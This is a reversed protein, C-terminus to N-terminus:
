NKAKKAAEREDFTQKRARALKILLDVASPGFGEDQYFSRLSGENKIGRIFAQEAASRPERERAEEREQEREERDKLRQEKELRATEDQDKDLLILKELVAVGDPGYGSQTYYTRLQDLSIIEELFAKEMSARPVARPRSRELEGLAIRASIESEPAGADGMISRFEGADIELDRFMDAGVSITRQNARDEGLRDQMEALLEAQDPLFNRERLAQVAEEKTYMGLRQMRNIDEKFPFRGALLKFDAADEKSWGLRGMIDFYTGEEMVGMNWLKAADKAAFITPRFKEQILWRFPTVVAAEYLPALARASIRGFGLNASVIDDLDGWNPVFKQLIPHTLVSSLWSEISTSVAFGIVQEANTRGQEPTLKGEGGINDFMGDMIVRGIANSTERRGGTGGRLGIRSVDVNIGFIDSLATAVAELMQQSSNAEYDDIAEGLARGFGSLIDIFTQVAFTMVVPVLNEMIPALTDVVVDIADQFSSVITKVFGDWNVEGIDFLNWGM